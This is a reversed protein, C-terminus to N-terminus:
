WRYRVRGTGTYTQSEEALETDVALGVSIGNAFALEAGASLLLLNEAPEAGEVTFGLGPVSQFEADVDTDSWTDHAWAARGRLSLATETNLAVTHEIRAGLETRTVTTTNEDYSLAFTSVGSETDEDYSPTFYAQARLAAYPILWGFRYGAEIHGAINHADFDSSFHSDIGVDIRRDISVDHYAYAVAGSVYARDIDTRAYLAVQLMDSGGDGRNSAVDFDTRGGGIALGVKTDPTVLRDIGVAIGGHSSSRDHTGAGDDGDNDRYGGYVGAWIEWLRPDSAAGLPPQDLSSFPAGAAPATEPGYGLVRVTDRPPAQLPTAPSRNLGPAMVMNLFSDMAQMGTPATGTAVEGSLQSLAEALEDPTLDALGDIFGPPLVGGGAIFDDIAEAIAGANDGADEDLEDEVDGAVVACGSSGPVFVVNSDFTVAATQSLAAGCSINAGTTLTISGTRAIIRGWFETNAGLTASTGVVFFINAGSAGNALLISSDAGTTLDRGILFIFVADTEGEADLTLQGNLLATVDTDYEYVGATLTRNGLDQGTLNTPTLDANVLGQFEGGLFGVLESQAGQSVTQGQRVYPAVIIGPGDPFFGVIKDNLPNTSVGVHGSVVSSGTNTVTSDALAGFDVWSQAQAATPAALALALLAFSSASAMFHRTM